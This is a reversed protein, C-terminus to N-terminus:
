HFRSAPFRRQSRVNQAPFGSASNQQTEHHSTLGSPLTLPCRGQTKEHASNAISITCGGSPSHITFPSQKIEEAARQPPTPSTETQWGSM